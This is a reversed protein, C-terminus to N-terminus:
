TLAPKVFFRSVALGRPDQELGVREVLLNVRYKTPTMRTTTGERHLTMETELSWTYIGSVPEAKLVGPPRMNVSMVFRNKVLEEIHPEIAKVFERNGDPTFCQSSDTMTSRYNVFDHSFAREICEKAFSVVRSDNVYPKDLAVVPVVRGSDTVAIVVPKRSFALALAGVAVALAVLAVISQAIMFRVLRPFLAARAETILQENVSSAAM